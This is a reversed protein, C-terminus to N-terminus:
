QSALTGERHLELGLSFGQRELLCFVGIFVATVLGRVEMCVHLGKNMNLHVVRAHWM